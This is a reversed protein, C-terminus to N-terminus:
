EIPTSILWTDDLKWGLYKVAQLTARFPCLVLYLLFTHPRDLLDSPAEPCRVDRAEDLLEAWQKTLPPLAETPTGEDTRWLCYNWRAAPIFSAFAMRSIDPWLSRCAQKRNTRVLLHLLAEIFYSSSGIAEKELPDPQNLIEHLRHRTVEDFDFYPSPLGEGKGKIHSLVAAVLDLLQAEVHVSADTARRYWYYALAQPIAAEGWLDVRYKPRSLFGEVEARDIQPPWGRTKAWFWFVSMLGLLLLHRAGHAVSDVLLNGEALHESALVEGALAALHDFIATEAVAIADAMMGDLDHRHRSAAAIAYTVFMLWATIAALHNQKEEFRQLSVGVLLAASTIRRGLEAEGAKGTFDVNLWLLEKLLRDANKVPYADRGDLVLIELLTLIEPLESPWLSEGLTLADALIDGRQIVELRGALGQLAYADNTREIALRAEEEVQGNTVLFSRHPGEPVGPGKIPYVVLEHLQTAIARFEALTLRTGPNGKLQFACLTGSPDIAIIDKGLEIPSHRSSHLIRYGKGLLVQCFPAQYSRESASDLWNEILRANM